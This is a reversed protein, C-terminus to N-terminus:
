RLDQIEDGCASMSFAQQVKAEATRLKCRAQQEKSFPSCAKRIEQPDRNERTLLVYCCRCWDPSPGCSSLLFLTFLVLFLKEM